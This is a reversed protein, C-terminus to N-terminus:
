LFHYVLMNMVAASATLALASPILPIWGAQTFVSACILFLTLLSIAIAIGLYLKQHVRWALIGGLLSWVFVWLAEIWVPLWWIFPRKQEVASLIHSTMQAQIFVGPVRREHEPLVESYPTKWYDASSSATVGILIIRNKLLRITSPEIREEIIDRLAITPAIKTVSDLSRYNLLIQYGAADIQQYGSSHPKLREFVVDSIQLQNKSNFKPEYGKSDLYERALLYAFAYDSACPSSVPPNLFLLQRRPVEDRDAMFDSFGVQEAPIEDSVAVGDKGNDSSSVKCVAFFRDDSELRKVLDPFNEDAPFDRYIDLGIAKPEFKDLKQLLKVLAEDSLSWRMNMKRDNQYKIDSEGITVILLREDRRETAPRLQMLHDYAKIEWPQLMGFYRVGMISTTVLLCALFLTQLVKKRPSHHRVQSRQASSEQSYVSNFEPVSYNERSESVGLSQMTPVTNRSTGKLSKNATIETTIGTQTWIMPAEAPNQCIVPLWTACPYNVELVQLRERAFRVATYLSQGVSFEALFYKLFDQAVLDPVPERMVIVQPIHLDQLQQALALSDCSNFIALKLGRSIAQRLAFRIQDIAITDTPNIYVLGKEKGSTHGAFFLIDWGEEWLQENLDGLPPEVLFKIEAQHSLQELFNRDRNIDIGTSEGFIALIKVKDRETNVQFQNPRRYEHTGLAVEALFYDEFFNWLHWPLRRMLIDNSEVIFRIEESPKLQTRLQREINRFEPTSLWANILVSLQYSLDALDVESVNTVYAEDIEFDDDDDDFDDIDIKRSSLCNRQYFAAYLSRWNQYVHAIEPAPPLSGIFKMTYFNDAEGLHLTVAPFGKYLDGQGLSLVVLSSM